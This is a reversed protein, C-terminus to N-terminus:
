GCQEIHAPAPTEDMDMIGDVDDGAPADTPNDGPVPSAMPASPGIPTTGPDPHSINRHAAPQTAGDHDGSAGFSPAPGSPHQPPTALQPPPGSQRRGQQGPRRRPRSDLRRQIEGPNGGAERVAGYDLTTVARRLGVNYGITALPTWGKSITGDKAYIHIDGLNANLLVERASKTEARRTCDATRSAATAFSASACKPGTPSRSTSPTTSGTRLASTTSARAPVTHQQLDRHRGRSDPRNTEFRAKDEQTTGRRAEREPSCARRGFVNDLLPSTQNQGTCMESTPNTAGVQWVM